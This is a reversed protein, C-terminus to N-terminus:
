EQTQRHIEPRTLSIPACDDKYGHKGKNVAAHYLQKLAVAEVTGAVGEIEKGVYEAAEEACYDM